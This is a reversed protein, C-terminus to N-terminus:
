LQIKQSQAAYFFLVDVAWHFTKEQRLHGVLKARLLDLVNAADVHLYLVEHGWEQM